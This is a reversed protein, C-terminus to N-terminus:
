YGKLTFDASAGAVATGAGNIARVVPALANTKDITLGVAGSTGAQLSFAINTLSTFLKAPAVPLPITTGSISIPLNNVVTTYDPADIIMALNNIKARITGGFLSIRIQYWANKVVIQGPWPQWADQESWASSGSLEPDDPLTSNAPWAPSGGHLRYEIMLGTGETSYQLTAVSGTLASGVKFASSTYVMPTYSLAQWASLNPAVPDDPQMPDSPWGATTSNAILAGSSPVGGSLLGPYGMTQFNITEVISAIPADGLNTYIVAADVSENGSDDIFKALLTIAGSPQSSPIWPQETLVGTHLPIATNWIANQGYNFRLIAGSLDPVEQRTPFTWSLTNNEVSFNKVSPPPATKGIVTHLPLYEWSSIAGNYSNKARARIRYTESQKVPSFLLSDTSSQATLIEPLGVGTLREAEVEVLDGRANSSNSRTQWSVRMGVLLTGDIQAFLTSNGSDVELNILPEVFWPNPLTTPPVLPLTVADLLDYVEPSDQKLVLTVGAGNGTSKDVIRYTAANQGMFASTWSVRDGVKLKWAKLSFMASITFDNRAQEVAIRNLQDVATQTITFPYTIGVELEAGDNALYTNQVYRRYDKDLYANDASAYRGYVTNFVDTESSGPSVSLAGVIDTESLSMIPARYVGAYIDWTTAVIGGAMSDAIQQLVSERSQDSSIMGNFTYRRRNGDGNNVVTDCDNAATIYKTTPLDLGDLACLPGKLYDYAVLAPNSGALASVAGTRVDFMSERKVLMEISPLSQFEPENLDVRVTIYSHGDFVSTTKLRGGTEVHTKQDYSGGPVGLHKTIRIPSVNTNYVYTIVRELEPYFDNVWSVTRGSLTHFIPFSIFVDRRDSEQLLQVTVQVTFDLLFATAPIDSLFVSTTNLPAITKGTRVGLKLFPGGVPFGEADLAGVAKGNIYIEPFDDIQHQTALAILHKYQDKNGSTLVDVINGGIRATGYVHRSPFESGIGNIGREQLSANYEDKQRRQEALARKKLKRQQASGFLLSGATFLVQGVTVAVAGISFLTSGLFAVVPAAYVSVSALLLSTAIITKRLDM